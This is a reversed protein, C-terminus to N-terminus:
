EFESSIDLSITNIDQMWIYKKIIKENLGVTSVFYGVGWVGSSGYAKDIFKFSKRLHFSSRAKLERVVDSIAYTPPFEMLIHVHDHDTNIEHFFWTPNKAQSVYFSKILEKRVYYKILKRRYKTRWVIHYLVQYVSHNLSRIRM